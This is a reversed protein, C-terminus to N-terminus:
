SRARPENIRYEIILPALDSGVTQLWTHSLQGSQRNRDRPLTAVIARLARSHDVSSDAHAIHVQPPHYPHHTHITALWYMPLFHLLVVCHAFECQLSSCLVKEKCIFVRAASLVIHDNVVHAVGWRRLHPMQHLVIVSLTIPTPEGPCLLETELGRRRDLADSTSLGIQRDRRRRVYM